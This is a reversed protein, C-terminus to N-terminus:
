TPGPGPIQGSFGSVSIGVLRIPQDRREYADLLEMAVGTLRATDNTADAVTKPAYDMRVCKQFYCHYNSTLSGNTLQSWFTAQTEPGEALIPPPTLVSM